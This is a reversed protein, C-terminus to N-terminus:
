MFGEPIFSGRFHIKLPDKIMCICFTSFKKHVLRKDYFRRWNKFLYKSKGSSDYYTLDTHYYKGRYQVVNWCHPTQNGKKDEIAGTIIRCPIGADVALRYYLMSYVLCVGYKQHLAHYVNYSRDTIDKDYELNECIFANIKRLKEKRKDDAWSKKAKNLAKTIKEEQKDSTQYEPYYTLSMIWGYQRRTLSYELACSSLSWYLYDGEQGKGTPAFALKIMKEPVGKAPRHYLPIRLTVKKRRQVLRKRLVVIGKKLMLTDRQKLRRSSQRAQVPVFSLLLLSLLFATILGRKSM